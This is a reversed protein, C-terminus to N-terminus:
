DRCSSFILWHPKCVHAALTPLSFSSFIGDKAKYFERRPSIVKATAKLSFPSAESSLRQKLLRWKFMLQLHGQWTLSFAFAFLVCVEIEMQPLALWMSMESNLLAPIYLEGGNCSISFLQPQLYYGWRNKLYKRLHCQIRPRLWLKGEKKQLGTTNEGREHCMDKKM